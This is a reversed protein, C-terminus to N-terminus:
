PEEGRSKYRQYFHPVRLRWRNPYMSFRVCPHPAAALAPNSPPNRTATSPAEAFKSIARRTRIRRSHRDAPGSDPNRPVDRVGENGTLLQPTPPVGYTVGDGAGLQIDGTGITRLVEVRQGSRQYRGPNLNLFRFSGDGSNQHAHQAKSLDQLLLVPFDGLGLDPPRERSAPPHPPLRTAPPFVSRESSSRACGLSQRRRSLASHCDFVLDQNDVAISNPRLSQARSKIFYRAHRHSHPPPKGM